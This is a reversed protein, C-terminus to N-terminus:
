IQGTAYLVIVDIVTLAAILVIWQWIKLHINTKKIIFYDAICWVVVFLAWGWLPPQLFALAIFIVVFVGNAALFLPM